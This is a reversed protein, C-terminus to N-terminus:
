DHMPDPQGTLYEYLNSQCVEITHDQQQNSLISYVLTIVAIFTAIKWGIANDAINQKNEEVQSDKM